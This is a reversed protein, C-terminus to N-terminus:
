IVDDDRDRPRWIETWILFMLIATAIGVWSVPTGAAALMSALVVAAISQVVKQARRNPVPRDFRDGDEVYEPLSDDYYPEEPEM